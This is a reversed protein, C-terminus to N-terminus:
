KFKFEVLVNGQSEGQIIIEHRMNVDIFKHKM